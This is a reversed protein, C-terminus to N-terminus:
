PFTTYMLFMKLFPQHSSAYNQVGRMRGGQIQGQGYGVTIMLLPVMSKTKKQKFASDFAALM